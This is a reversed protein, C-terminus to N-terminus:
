RSTTGFRFSENVQAHCLVGSRSDSTVMSMAGALSPLMSVRVCSCNASSAARSSWRLPQIWASSLRSLSNGHREIEIALRDVEAIRVPESVQERVQRRPGRAGGLDHLPEEHVLMDGGGVANREALPLMGLGMNPRDGAHQFANHRMIRLGQSRGARGLLPLDADAAMEGQQLNGHQAALAQRGARTTAKAGIELGALEEVMPDGFVPILLLPAPDHDIRLQVRALALEEAEGEIREVHRVPLEQDCAKPM